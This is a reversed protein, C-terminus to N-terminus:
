ILSMPNRVATNTAAGLISPVGHACHTALDLGLKRQASARVNYVDFEPRQMGLM